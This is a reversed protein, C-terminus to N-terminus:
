PLSNSPKLYDHLITSTINDHEPQQAHPHDVRTLDAAFELDRDLRDVRGAPAAVAPHLRPRFAAPVRQHAVHRREVPRHRNRPRL